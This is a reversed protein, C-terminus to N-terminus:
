PEVVEYITVTIHQFVPRLYAASAPDFKGMEREDPGHFVHTIGYRELMARRDADSTGASFFQTAEVRKQPLFPTELAHGWFVYRGTYAPIVTGTTYASLVAAESSTGAALWRIGVAADAPIYIGPTYGLISILISLWVYVSSMASFAVVGMRTLNERYALGEGSVPRWRGWLPILWGHLGAAALACM